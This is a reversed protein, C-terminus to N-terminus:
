SSVSILDLKNIKSNFPLLNYSEPFWSSPLVNWLKSAFEIYAYFLVKCPTPVQELGLVPIVLKTTRDELIFTTYGNVLSCNTVHNFCM